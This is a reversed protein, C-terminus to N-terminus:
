SRHSLIEAERAGCQSIGSQQALREISLIHYGSWGVMIARAEDFEMWVSPKQGKRATLIQRRLPYPSEEDQWERWAFILAYHNTLHFLLVVNARSFANKIANWQQEVANEDDAKTLPMVINKMGGKRCLLCQVRIPDVGRVSPLEEAVQKIGWSGIESTNPKVAQLRFVGKRKSLLERMEKPFDPGSAVVDCSWAKSQARQPEADEQDEEVDDADGTGEETEASPKCLVERLAALARLPAATAEAAMAEELSASSPAVANQQTGLSSDALIERVATMAVGKTVAKPGSRATWELGKELLHADVSLLFSDLAGDTVGLLRELRRQRQERLVDCHAAM